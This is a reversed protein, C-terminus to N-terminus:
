FYRSMLLQNFFQQFIVQFQKCFAVRLSPLPPVRSVPLLLLVHEHVPVRVQEQLPHEVVLDLQGTVNRIIRPLLVVVQRVPTVFGSELLVPLEDLLVAVPVVHEASVM